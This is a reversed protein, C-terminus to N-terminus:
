HQREKYSLQLTTIKSEAYGSTAQLKLQMDELFRRIFLKDNDTLDSTVDVEAGSDPFISIKFLTGTYELRLTDFHIRNKGALSNKIVKLKIWAEISEDTSNNQNWDVIATANSTLLHNDTAICSSKMPKDTTFYYWPFVSQLQTYVKLDFVFAIGNTYPATSYDPFSFIVQKKLKNYSVVCGDKVTESLTDDWWEFLGEGIRTEKDSGVSMMWPGQYDFGFFTNKDVAFVAKQNVITADIYKDIQRTNENGFISLHTAFRDQFILFNEGFPICGVPEEQTKVVNLAPIIDLNFPLSYNGGVHDTVGLILMRNGNIASFKYRFDSIGTDGRPIGLDAYMEAGKQIFHNDFFTSYHYFSGDDRWRSIVSLTAAGDAPANPLVTIELQSATPSGFAIATVYYYNDNTEDYLWKRALTFDYFDEFDDLVIKNAVTVGVNGVLGGLYPDSDDNLHARHFFYALENEVNGIDDVRAYYLDIAVIRKLIQPTTNDIYLNVEFTQTAGLLGSIVLDTGISKIPFGQQGDELVPSAYIVIKTTEGFGGISPSSNNSIALVSLASNYTLLGDIGYGQDELYKGAAITVADKFRKREAEYGYRFPLDTAANLGAGSRVVNEYLVPYMQDVTPTGTREDNPIATIAQYAGGSYISEELGTGDQILIQRDGNTNKFEFLNKLLTLGATLINKYPKRRLLSGQKRALEYNVQEEVVYIPKKESEIQTNVGWWKDINLFAM